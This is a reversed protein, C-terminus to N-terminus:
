QASRVCFSLWRKVFDPKRKLYLEELDDLFIDPRRRELRKLFGKWVPVMEELFLKSVDDPSQVKMMKMEKRIEEDVISFLSNTIEEKNKGNMILSSFRSFLVQSTIM